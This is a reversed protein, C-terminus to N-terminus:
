IKIWKISYKSKLRLHCPGFLAHGCPQIHLLRVLIPCEDPKCPESCLSPCRHGCEMKKICRATCAVDRKDFCPTKKVKHGCSVSPRQVPYNCQAPTHHCQNFCPLPCPHGCVELPLGCLQGCVIGGM